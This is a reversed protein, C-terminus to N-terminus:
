CKKATLPPSTRRLTKKNQPQTGDFNQTGKKGYHACTLSPFFSCCCRPVVVQWGHSVSQPPCFNHLTHSFHRKTYQTTARQVQSQVRFNAWNASTKIYPESTVDFVAKPKLGDWKFVVGKQWTSRAAAGRSEAQRRHDGTASTGSGAARSKVACACDRLFPEGTALIPVFNRRAAGDVKLGASNRDRRHTNKEIRKLMKKKKSKM